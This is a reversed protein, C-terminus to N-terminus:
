REGERVLSHEARHSALELLEPVAEIYWYTHAPHAHGLYTSLKLMEREPDKGSCYWNIMTRAAFTHRLDHIRPGRGHKKFKQASRLGIRQCVAAFNYRAGCDGPREGRDSAFFSPPAHGLLRDRERAYAMLRDSTSEAVPVIRVKGSKGQRITLVGTALDVDGNDLGIAESVRLGTVAILGFLTTYTLARLGYVSPLRAAEEMIRAIEQDSYIYPRSRRYRGPILAKPPVETRDDIGSLWQAFLRIAGLRAAWTSSAARGFAAQWRLFLDTTVHDAGQSEVFSVFRRLFRASTRLDFGLSRRVALYNELERALTSM